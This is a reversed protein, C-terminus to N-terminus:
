HWRYWTASNYNLDAFLLASIPRYICMALSAFQILLNTRLLEARPSTWLATPRYYLDFEQGM